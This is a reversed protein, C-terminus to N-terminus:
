ADAADSEGDESLLGSLESGLDDLDGDLFANIKQHIDSV